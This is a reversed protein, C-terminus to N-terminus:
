KNLQIPYPTPCTDATNDAPKLKVKQRLSHITVQLTHTSYHVIKYDSSQCQGFTRFAPSCSGKSPMDRFRPGASVVEVRVRSSNDTLCGDGEVQVDCSLECIWIQVHITGNRDKPLPRGGAFTM